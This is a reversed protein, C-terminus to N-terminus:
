RRVRGRHRARHHRQPGAVFVTGKDSPAAALLNSEALYRATGPDWNTTIQAVIRGQQDPTLTPKGQLAVALSSNRIVFTGDAIRPQLKEWAGELFGFTNSDSPAGAYLYLNNGKTAGAQDILYQAQAAGVAANDFTLYYDVSATGLILRGYSIVTVGAARAEDAAAAAATADQPCLILVKIGQRILAEVDAKETASDESLLVRAGYGAAAFGDQFRAQQVRAPDPGWSSPIVIGVSVHPGPSALGSAAPLATAAPSATAVPSPTAVPPAVVAPLTEVRQRPTPPVPLLHVDRLAGSAILGMGMLALLGAVVLIWAFGLGPLRWAPVSVLRRVPVLRRMRPVRTALSDTLRAADIETPAAEVYERVAAELRREFVEREESM